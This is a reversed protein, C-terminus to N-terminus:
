GRNNFAAIATIIVPPTIKKGGIVLRKGRPHIIQANGFHNFDGIEGQRFIIAVFAFGNM